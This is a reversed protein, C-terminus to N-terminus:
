LRIKKVGGFGACSRMTGLGFVYLLAALMRWRASASSRCFICTGGAQRSALAHALARVFWSLVIVM